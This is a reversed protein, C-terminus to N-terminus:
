KRGVVVGYPVPTLPTILTMRSGGLPCFLGAPFLHTSIDSATGLIPILLARKKLPLQLLRAPFLPRPRFIPTEFIGPLM